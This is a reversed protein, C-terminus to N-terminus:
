RAGAADETLTAESEGYTGIEAAFIAHTGCEALAVLRAQPFAAQEGKNVGPRGFLEDNATTDAVDLCTGDIAVLRRGALWGGPTETGGDAPRGARVVGGVAGVGAAGPGPLDGVQEAAPVAGAM